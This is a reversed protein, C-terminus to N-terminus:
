SRARLCYTLYLNVKKLLLMKETQLMMVIVIM